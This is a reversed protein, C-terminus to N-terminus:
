LLLLVICNHWIVKCTSSTGHLEISNAMHDLWWCNFQNGWWTKRASLTALCMAPHFNHGTLPCIFRREPDIALLYLPTSKPEIVISAAMITIVCRWQASPKRSQLQCGLYLTRGKWGWGSDVAVHGSVLSLRWTSPCWRHDLRYISLSWWFKQSLIHGIYSHIYRYRAKLGSIHPSSMLPETICHGESWMQNYFQHHYYFTM